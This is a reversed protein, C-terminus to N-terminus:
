TPDVSWITATGNVHGGNTICAVSWRSNPDAYGEGLIYAIGFTTPDTADDLNTEPLTAIFPPSTAVGNRLLLFESEGTTVQDLGDTGDPEAWDAVM